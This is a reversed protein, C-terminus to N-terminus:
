FPIDSPDTPLSQFVEEKAEVAVRDGPGMPQYMAATEPGAEIRLRCGLIPEGTPTQTQVSYLIVTKGAWLDSEDTYVTKMVDWNGSNVVMGREKGVFYMVPKHDNSNPMKKMVVNAIVLKIERQGIEEGTIFEKPLADTKRM